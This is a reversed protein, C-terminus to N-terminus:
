AWVKILSDWGASAVAFGDPSTKVCSVKTDHAHNLHSHQCEEGTRVDWVKIEKEDYGAFLYAGTLSVDLTTVCRGVNRDSRYCNLVRQARIDTLMCTSDDSGSIFSTGDRLWQVCNVDAEHTSWYTFAPGAGSSRLDWLRISTDISGSVLMNDDNPCVSFGMVDGEHAGLISTCTKSEVDWVSITTDGSGCLLKKNGNLVKLCSIYGEHHVLEALVQNDDDDQTEDALKHITITNDLGGSAVLINAPDTYDTNFYCCAMLWQSRLPVVVTKYSSLANWVLLKGDQAGSLLHTSDGAWDLGYIKQFHGGLRRQHRINTPLTTIGKSKATISLAFPDGKLADIEQFLSNNQEKLDM